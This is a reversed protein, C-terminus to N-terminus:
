RQDEDERAMMARLSRTRPFYLCVAVGLVALVAFFCAAGSGKGLGFCRVLLSDAGQRAMLPEFVSDVLWGGMLQGLPITFFQLTNRVAFVRGQIATPISLRMVADLNANMLPILLWGLCAGVCWVPLTRGFALMLNETSMSVMLTACIVKVRNKPAPLLTAVVSGLLTAIGMTTNLVGLAVEGGGERSLLMPSLAAEYMAAVWNIAALFLVLMLVGRKQRLFALGERASQLLPQKTPAEATKPLRIFLLLTLFAVAFTALDFLFVASMGLLGLIATAIVPRLIGNVSNALSRLGGVRQYASRPLLLTTAVESAPQQVTNMVGGVANVVYLHWLQLKGTAMLVMVCVTSLAAGADCVLMTKRPDWRDSLAGAFVSLVVYPAYACVMLLATSLASGTQTYSWIVLAYSTVASGLGSFTQTLWLLLFPGMERLNSSNNQKAAM